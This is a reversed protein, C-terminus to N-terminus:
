NIGRKPEDEDSPEEELVKKARYFAHAWRSGEENFLKTTPNKFGMAKLFKSIEKNMKPITNVAIAGSAMCIAILTKAYAKHVNGETM